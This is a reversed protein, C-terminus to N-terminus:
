LWFSLGFLFSKLEKKFFSFSKSTSRLAPPLSNWARPVAVAFSRDGISALRTPPVVLDSTSASRLQCIGQEQTLVALNKPM